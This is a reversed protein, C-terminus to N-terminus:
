GKLLVRLDVAPDALRAPDPRAGAAILRRAVAMARSDGLTAAGLLRGDEALYFGVPTAGHRLVEHGRDPLGEVLLRTGHQDSWFGPVEDYAPAAPDLLAAAAARAQAEAHRWSEQRITVGYRPLPHRAVDGIALIDPDDLSRAHHDVLIGDRTSLGAAAALGEDPAAGIGLLICDTEIRTGDGLTAVLGAGHWDAAIVGTGLRVEVGRARHLDLLRDSFFAPAGRAMLRDALEVVVPHAGLTAATAAVELGIVGGGVLLLRRGPTLVARLAAVDAQNRLAFIPMDPDALAPLRRARAGTALVLTTYPLPADAGTVKVRKGVRDISEARTDVLIEIGLAPWDVPLLTSDPTAKGALVDKSLPPREYPAHPEEALLTIRADSGGRRLAEAFRGGAQGGGVIVVHDKM